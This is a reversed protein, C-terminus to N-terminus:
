TRAEFAAGGRTGAECAGAAGSPHPRVRAEVPTVQEDIVQQLHARNDGYWRASLRPCDPRTGSSAPPAAALTAAAVLTWAFTVRFSRYRM